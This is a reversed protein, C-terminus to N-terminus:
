VTTEVLNVRHAILILFRRVATKAGAGVILNGSNRIAPNGCAYSEDAPM